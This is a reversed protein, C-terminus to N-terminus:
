KAAAKAATLLEVKKEEIKGRIMVAIDDPCADIRAASGDDIIKLLEIDDQMAVAELFREVDFDAPIKKTEPEPQDVDMTPQAQKDAKPKLEELPGALYAKMGKAWQGTLARIPQENIERMTNIDGANMQGTYKYFQDLFTEEDGCEAIVEGHIDVMDCFYAPESPAPTENVVEADEPEPKPAEVQKAPGTPRADEPNVELASDGFDDMDLERFGIGCLVDPFLDRLCFGRARMKIMRKPHKKYTDADVLEATVADAWTYEETNEEGTDSRKAHCTAKITEPKRPDGEVTEKIFACIGSGRIVGILADGWASARNNVVMIGSISQMPSLRIEAGYSLCLYVNAKVEEQAYRIFGQGRIYKGMLAQPLLTSRSLGDSLRWLDEMNVPAISTKREPTKVAIDKTEAPKKKETKTNM